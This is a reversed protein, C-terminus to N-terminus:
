GYRSDLGAFQISYLGRQSNGELPAGEARVLTWINQNVDLRTVKNKNIAFNLQTRWSFGEDRKIPSGAVTFEFGRSRMEVFNAQKNYQGGIGSTRIGGILDFINRRFWDVTVDIKRNFLSLDTGINLEYLKEWTLNSNKLSSIYIMAEKELEYPRYTMRNYYVTSSNNANGMSAVLGYTGRIRALDSSRRTPFSHRGPRHGDRNLVPLVAVVPS